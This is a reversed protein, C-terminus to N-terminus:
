GTLRERYGRSLMLETGDYLMVQYDGHAHPHLKQIRDINVITSRHIRRFRAPDLQQELNSIRERLLYSTKGCHLRVYNEEASIWDIEKTKLFFVAGGSKIIVRDLYKPQGRLEELLERIQSTLEGAQARIQTKARETARGFRERHFPKLLYDLARVEFARVAYKDYATVFIVFPLRERRLADLVAFGDMDPMQVDLFVLDPGCARLAAVAELGNGCEGVVNIEPDGKLFERIKRRALPEDDVILTRIVSM